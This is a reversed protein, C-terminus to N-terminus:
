KDLLDKLEKWSVQEKKSVLENFAAEDEGRYFKVAVVRYFMSNRFLTVGQHTFNLGTTNGLYWFHDDDNPIENYLVMYCDPTIPTGLVSTSVPSWSISADEANFSIEVNDPAVPPVYRGVGTLRVGIFPHDQANSYIRISDRVVATNTPTFVMQINISSGPQVDQPFTVDLTSFKTAPQWFSIGSITLVGTGPNSIVVNMPQSSIGLYVSGFDMIPNSTLQALPIHPTATIYDTRTYVSSHGLSDSVTLSVSYVGPREYIHVPNTEVSTIGDGFNWSRTVDNLAASETFHVTVPIEANTIDASFTLRPVQNTFIPSSTIDASYVSKVAWKFLGTGLTNWMTDRYTTETVMTPTLLSWAGEINEQGPLLRWVKYGIFSRQSDTVLSKSTALIISPTGDRNIHTSSVYGPVSKGTSSASRSESILNETDFHINKAPTSISIDDIAWIYWLGNGDGDVAQWAIKINQNAYASLSISIPTTYHNDAEPLSTADWLITWSTGGNTSVKVYYHDWHQSGTHGYMWFKLTANSPCTFQSTKMWEDQPATNWVVLAQKSGEHPTLTLEGLTVESYTSWTPLLGFPSTGSNDTITQTWDTPPFTTGEFSETMFNNAANPDRWALIMDDNGYVATANTPATLTETLMITGLDINSAVTVFSGTVTILSSASISYSYTINGPVIISFDGNTNTTTTFVTEGTITVLAGSLGQSVNTNAILHGSITVQPIATLNFNVTHTQDMIITVPQTAPYYGTMSARVTYTGPTIHAISYVGSVNTVASYSSSDLTISAGNLPTVGSTVTGNLITTDALFFLTTNPYYSSAAGTPPATPDAQVEDSHYERSRNQHVTDNTNYFTDGSTYYVTDLPRLVMIVLNRGNYQYPTPFDIHINNTGIPYNVNGSFVQTMQTSPIWGYSCSTSDTEGIWITTPRQQLNTNMFYNRWNLGSILGTNGIESAFLISETLSTKYYMNIPVLYSTVTGTGITTTITGAPQISFYISSTTNNAINEDSTLSVYAYIIRAGTVLPTWNVTVPITAGSAIVPGAFSAVTGSTSDVLNIQYSTETITGLNKVTVVYATSTGANPTNNGTFSLAAMDRYVVAQLNGMNVSAAAVIVSGTVNLYGSAVITYSYTNNTYVNNITFYGSSDTVASYNAYGTLSVSANPVGQISNTALVLRGTVQVSPIPSIVFNLNHTQGNIVTVNGSLDYYGHKTATLTHTGAIVNSISYYGNADTTGTVSSNDVRVIAGSVPSSNSTVYGDVTGSTHQITFSVNPINNITQAGYPAIPSLEVTDNHYERTRYADTNDLTTYFTDSSNFFEIDLPRQVMIVLNGGMYHYPTTFTININNIGSPYNVNGSFVQTLSSNSIWSSLLSTQTTEGVWIKTPKSLLNTVFNSYWTLGTIFGTSNIESALYITESLSSKFYMNLPITNLLVSGTGITVTTTEPTNDATTFSWVPCSVADGYENYPVVKWYYTMLYSMDPNPDYTIVNGLDTGNMVNTPPNDTGFYLKYGTPNGVGASWNLSSTVPVSTSLDTPIVIGAVGPINATSFSWVPCSVADGASNYPVVKWYYTSNLTLNPNPDYSTNAGLDSGNVINTPPNDTGFYLKYGTPNGIGTSWNLTTSPAIWTSADAPSILVAHGPAVIIASSSFRYVLGNTPVLTPTMICTATNVTGAVSTDWTNTGSVVSRNFFDSNNDGRLGVQFTNNATTSMVINGYRYEVQNSNEYLRIQFNFQDANYSSGLRQYNKWQVTFVRNPAIGTTLTMLEGNSKGKLDRNMAAALNNSGSVNPNSIAVLSNVATSGMVLFGNTNISVNSYTVGNFVFDFGLSINNFNLDDNTATGLITGGSIESYTETTSSFNYNSVLATLLGIMCFFTILIVVRKM